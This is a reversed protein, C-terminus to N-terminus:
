KHHVRHAGCIQTQKLEDLYDSFFEGLRDVHSDM